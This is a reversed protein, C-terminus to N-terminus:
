LLEVVPLGVYSFGLLFISKVGRMSQFGLSLIPDHNIEKLALIGKLVWPGSQARLARSFGLVGMLAELAWYRAKAFIYGVLFLLFM